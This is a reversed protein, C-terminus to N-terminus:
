YANADMSFMAKVQWAVKVKGADVFKVFFYSNCPKKISNTADHCFPM